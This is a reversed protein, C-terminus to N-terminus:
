NRFNIQAALDNILEKPSSSVAAFANIGSTLFERALEIMELEDLTRVIDPIQDFNEIQDAKFYEEAYFDAIQSVTQASMQYRGIAYSRAAQLDQPDIKGDLVRQLERHILRFLAEAKAVEVEGGFDWSSKTEDLNPNCSLGYALGRRRAAGFIRSSTTGTLIHSLATMTLTCTPDLRRPIVFSFGFTIDTADKRRILAPKGQHLLDVPPQLRTGRQLPWANLLRLIKRKRSFPLNGAIIFRMNDSTHTRRYHELIDDLTINKITKLRKRLSLIEEGISQQIRPWLLRDYDNLYSTLESTVNGQESALETPNFKPQCIALSKLELIRDWEFDACETVYCLGLDSTWANHYAGNKTFEAEYASESAFRANAGFSLHETLHAIEYLEPTKAYRLGGRFHVRTSMVSASPIHILLGRAGNKLRFEEPSHRM